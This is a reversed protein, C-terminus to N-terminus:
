ELSKAAKRAAERVGVDPDTEAVRSLFDIAERRTRASV